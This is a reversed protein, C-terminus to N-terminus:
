KFLLFPALANSIIQTIYSLNNSSIKIKRWSDSQVYVIDGAHLMIDSNKISDFNTLDVKRLSMKGKANKSMIIINDRVANDKLDGAQAIAELINIQEHDLEIPGPKNVEGLIYVKKNMAEVSFYPNRMYKKYLKEIKRAAKGQTLGAVKVRHILPMSIYGKSDVLFGKENMNTPIIEPNNYSIIYLRDHPKIRYEYKSYGLLPKPKTTVPKNTKILNHNKLSCGTLLFTIIAVIQILIKM